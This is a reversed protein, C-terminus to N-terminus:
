ATLTVAVERLRDGAESIIPEGHGFCATEVDLAALRRFSAITRARDQNFVGLMLARRQRHHRRHVARRAEPLHVAISGETHGPIELITHAAASTSSTAM